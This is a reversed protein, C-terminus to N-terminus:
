PKGERGFEFLEYHYYALVWQKRQPWVAVDDSSPYCFCDWYDAFIRWTTRVGLDSQWSVIVRANDPQQRLLWARGEALPIHTQLSTITGYRSASLSRNAQYFALSETNADPAETEALPLIQALVEPPLTEHDAQTWRWALPFEEATM